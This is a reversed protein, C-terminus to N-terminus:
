LDNAYTLIKFTGGREYIGGVLRLQLTDNDSIVRQICDHWVRNLGETVPEACSNSLVRMPRGGFRNLLRTAGKQSQQVHLFWALAPEQVTPARTYRSTPYYLWAFEQRTMVMTRLRTTDSMAVTRALTEIVESISAEGDQLGSVSPLQHRFLVLASDLSVPSGGESRRSGLASPRSGLAAGEKAPLERCGLVLTLAVFAAGVSRGILQPRLQDV